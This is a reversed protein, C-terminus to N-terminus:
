RSGVSSVQCLRHIAPMAQGLVPISCRNTLFRCGSRRWRCPTQRFSAFWMYASAHNPNLELARSFAAAAEINENGVRTEQWIQLKMLGVTAYADALDPNLALAVDLEREAISFAEDHEVAKDNSYLLLISTALGAHAEAFNPDLEIAEEFQQRASLAYALQRQAMDSRAKTYLNYAVMNNTPIRAMRGEDEPTLAARLELSVSSSIESQIAFIDQLTLKRDYTEAWLHGDTRADFLQMNIRVSDGIRQVTGELLTDVNLEEGIQPIDRTTDDRYQMVSTRSIVRLSKNNALKTLLDDHIGDAFLANEPDTSLNKFPLVAISPRAIADETPGTSNRVGTLNFTISITLAVVLLGIIAFNMRAPSKDSAPATHDVDRDLKVGAPTIEFIWAFILSLIFGCIVIIVYTQFAWEPAGFTPLLVSGAEIIIWAVLAYTAAVRFVNRRVLESAFTTM